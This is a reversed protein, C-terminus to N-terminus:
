VLSCGCPRRRVQATRDLSAMSKGRRVSMTLDQVSARDGYRKSLVNTRVLINPDDPDIRVPTTRAGTQETTITSMAREKLNHKDRPFRQGWTVLIALHVPPSVRGSARNPGARLRPRPFRRPPRRAGATFDSVPMYRVDASDADGTAYVCSRWVFAISRQPASWSSSPNPQVVERWPRSWYGTM